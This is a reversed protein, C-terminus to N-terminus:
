YLLLHALLRLSAATCWCCCFVSSFYSASSDELVWIDVGCTGLIFLDVFVVWLCWVLFVFLFYGVSLLLVCFLTLSVPLWLAVPSCLVLVCEIFLILFCFVFLVCMLLLHPWIVAPFRCWGLKPLLPCLCQCAEWNCVVSSFGFIQFLQLMDEAFFIPRSSIPDASCFLRFLHVHAEM